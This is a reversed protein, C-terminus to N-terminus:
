NSGADLPPGLPIEEGSRSIKRLNMVNSGNKAPNGTITVQDGPKLKHSNWGYRVLHNPSTMEISWKAINGSEDKVDVTIIPHPQIFQFDEVTGVLTITRAEYAALGHHAALPQALAGAISLAIFLTVSFIGHKM